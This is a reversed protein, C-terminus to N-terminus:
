RQVMKTQKKNHILAPGGMESSDTVLIDVFLADTLIKRMTEETYGETNPYGIKEASDVFPGCGVITYHWEQNVKQGKRRIEDLQDTYKRWISHPGRMIDELKYEKEIETKAWEYTDYINCIITETQYQDLWKEERSADIPYHAQLYTYPYRKAVAFPDVGRKLNVQYTVLCPLSTDTM